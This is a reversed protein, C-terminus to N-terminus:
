IQRWGLVQVCFSESSAYESTRLKTVHKKLMRGLVDVKIKSQERTVQSGKYGHNLFQNLYQQDMLLQFM